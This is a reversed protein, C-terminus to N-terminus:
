LKGGAKLYAERAKILGLLTDESKSSNFIKIAKDLMTKLATKPNFWTHIKHIENISVPGTLLANVDRSRYSQVKGEHIRLFERKGLANMMKGIVKKDGGGTSVVGELVRGRDNDTQLRGIIWTHCNGLVKYCIDKPNQTAAIVGVGYDRGQKFLTMLMPKTAPVQPHPPMMGYCEDVVLLGRMKQKGGSERMWAVMKSFFLTLAFMKEREDVLHTVSYIVVPTKGSKPTLLKSMDLEVGQMWDAMEPDCFLGNLRLLLDERMKKTIAREVSLVGVKKIQPDMCNEMLVKINCTKKRAHLDQVVSALFAFSKSRMPNRSVGILECLEGLTALGTNPDNLGLFLNVPTGHTAGPTLIHVDLKELVAEEQQIINLLDGKVDVLIVPVEQHMAQEVMGIVQGTKGSGTSGFVAVHHNLYSTDLQVLSGSKQAGLDIKM